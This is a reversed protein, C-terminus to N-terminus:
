ASRKMRRSKAFAPSYSQILRVAEPDFVKEGCVPCDHFEVNPATYSKGQYEETLDRRVKRIKDSGCTPCHKIQVM